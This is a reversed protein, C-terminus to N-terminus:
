KGMIKALRRIVRHLQQQSKDLHSSVKRWQRADEIHKRADFLLGRVEDLEGELGRLYALAAMHNQTESGRGRISKLKEHKQLATM